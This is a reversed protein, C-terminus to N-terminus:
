LAEQIGRDILLRKEERLDHKKFLFLLRDTIDRVPKKM